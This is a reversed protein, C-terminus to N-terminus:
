TRRSRSGCRALSTVAGTQLQVQDVTGDSKFMFGLPDVSNINAFFIRLISTGSPATYIPPSPGWASRLEGSALPFLNEQWWVDENGIASRSSAQNVGGAPWNELTIIEPPNASQAPM